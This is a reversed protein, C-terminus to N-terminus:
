WVYFESLIIKQVKSPHLKENKIYNKEIKHTDGYLGVQDRIQIWYRGVRIDIYM